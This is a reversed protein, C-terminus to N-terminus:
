INRLTKTLAFSNFFRPKLNKLSRTKKPVGRSGLTMMNSFPNSSNRSWPRAKSVCLQNVVEQFM